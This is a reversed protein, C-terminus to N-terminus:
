KRYLRQKEHKSFLNLPTSAAGTPYPISPSLTLCLCSPMPSNFASIFVPLFVSAFSLLLHPGKKKHSLHNLWNEGLVMGETVQTIEDETLKDQCYIECMKTVIEIATDKVKGARRDRFNKVDKCICPIRHQMEHEYYFHMMDAMYFSEDRM